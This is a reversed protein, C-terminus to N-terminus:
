PPSESSGLWYLGMVMGELRKRSMVALIHLFIVLMASSCPITPGSCNPNRCPRLVRSATKTKVVNSFCALAFFQCYEAANMSMEFTYMNLLKVSVRDVRDDM